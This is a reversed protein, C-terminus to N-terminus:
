DKTYISSLVGSSTGMSESTEDLEKKLKGFKHTGYINRLMSVSNKKKFIKNLIATLGSEALQKGKGNQLLFFPEFKKPLHLLKEFIEKVNDPVPFSQSGYTGATKYSNFVFKDPYQLYNFKKDLEPTIKPVVIMHTFDKSRRPPMLVFLSLILYELSNKDLDDYIKMVEEWELWNEKQAETKEGKIGNFEKNLSMMKEYYFKKQKEPFPKGKLYSVIAIYYAKKTNMSLHEIKQSIVDTKKLFSPNEPVKGNNLRKLNATYSKISSETLNGGFMRINNNSIKKLLKIELLINISQM